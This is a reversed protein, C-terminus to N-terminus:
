AATVTVVVNADIEEKEPITAKIVATGEAVASVVGSTVTAINEKDTAFTLICIDFWQLYTLCVKLTLNHSSYWLHPSTLPEASM